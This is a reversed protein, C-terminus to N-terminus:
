ASPLWAVFQGHPGAWGVPRGDVAVLFSDVTPQPATPPGVTTVVGPAENSIWVADVSRVMEGFRERNARELVYGLVASHYIVLTADPPVDAVVSSIDLDLLDGQVIHPRTQRAIAIARRLREARDEMGPWVLTELWAAAEPSAPDLPNLDVGRRWVVTPLSRPEPAARDLACPFVPIEAPDADAAALVGDGYDYGYCDPLLCLGAAAGIELLALPQPLAALIPLLVACRGPENTQTTRTLMIRRVDDCRDLVGELFADNTDPVGIVSRVAALFLNPQQRERPLESLFELLAPTEAVYRSLREYATSRGAAEVDAFRRYRRAIPEIHDTSKHM